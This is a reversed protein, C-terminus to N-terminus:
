QLLLTSCLRECWLVFYLTVPTVDNRVPAQGYGVADMGRYMIEDWDDGTSMVYLLLMASGYNDFSGYPPNSWVYRWRSTPPGSGGKLRRLGPVHEPSPNSGVADLQQGSRGSPVETSVVEALSLQRGWVLLSQPSPPHPPPPPPLPPLPPMPMLLKPVPPLPSPSPPPPLPPPPPPLPSPPPPLSPSPLPPLPPMPIPPEVLVAARQSFQSAGVPAVCEASTAIEFHYGCSAFSGMFLEIGLIAFLTMFALVAGFVNAVGPLSSVLSRIVLRMGDHRSLFRLPRLVRIVRLMQLEDFADMSSMVTAIVIAFDLANWGTRIYATPTSMFTEAVIKIFAEVVFAVTLLRNFRWVAVGVLSDPDTRPTDVTLAIASFVILWLIVKDFAVSSALTKCFRRVPHRPGFIYLSHNTPWPADLNEKEVAETQSFSARQLLTAVRNKITQTDHVRKM